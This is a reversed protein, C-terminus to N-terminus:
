EIEIGLEDLSTEIIEVKDIAFELLKTTMEYISLGTINSLEKIKEYQSKSVRIHTSNSSATKENKIFVLNEM